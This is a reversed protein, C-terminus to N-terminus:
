KPVRKIIIWKQLPKGLSARVSCVLGVVSFDWNRGKEQKEVKRV